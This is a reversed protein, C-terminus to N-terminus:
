QFAGEKTYKTSEHVHFGCGVVGYSVGAHLEDLEPIKERLCIVARRHKPVSSLVENMKFLSIM